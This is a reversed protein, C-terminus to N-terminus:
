EIIDEDKLYKEILRPFAYSHLSKINVKKLLKTKLPAKLDILYFITYLNQHSLVHKYQHSVSKLVSNKASTIQKLQENKLLQDPKQKKDSEILYFEYLGQWIDKKARKCIYINSKYRFVMYNFYRDRVKTKKAKFPLLAVKNKQFAACKDNFICNDCDPNVPRCYLAGFEMIAQNYDATEKKDLLENALNQFHKKGEGSDIALDIGFVRSLVRYVNGDVVAHPLNYALSAIAAATYDGVGKLNRISEYTAPFSSKHEKVVFKAAEHLNRARSYYGLGQWLKMVEDAPANALLRVNPYAEIFKLYYALGQNVQTQQLIIESLWIKYPDKTGRWPLERKNIKYWKLLRKRFFEM